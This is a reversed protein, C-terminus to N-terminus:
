GIIANIIANVFATGLFVIGVFTVAIVIIVGGILLRTFMRKDTYEEKIMNEVQQNKTKM